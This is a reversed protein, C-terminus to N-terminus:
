SVSLTHAHSLTPSLYPTTPSFSVFMHACYVSVCVCLCWVSVCVCLCVSCEGESLPMARLRFVGQKNGTAVSVADEVAASAASSGAPPAEESEEQGPQQQEEAAAAAASRIMLAAPPLYTSPITGALEPAITERFAIIPDSVRIQFVCVCVCPLSPTFSILITSNM